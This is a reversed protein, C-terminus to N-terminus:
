ILSSKGSLSTPDNQDKNFWYPPHAPYTWTCMHSKEGLYYNRYSDVPDSYNKYKDPMALAFNTMSIITPIFEPLTKLVDGLEKITKHQRLYRREYERGMSRFLDYHYLYNGITEYTWVTCPHNIHTAKYLNPKKIGKVHHATSLMQGSELIMKVIHRDCLSEAIKNPDYDLIFINM